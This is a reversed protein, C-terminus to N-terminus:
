ENIADQFQQVFTGLLEERLLRITRKEDNTSEMYEMFTIPMSEPDSPYPNTPSVWPISTVFPKVEGVIIGNREYHRVSHSANGYTDFCIRELKQQTLPWDFMPNHIENFLLVVWHFFTSGYYKKALSEPTEGDIVTHGVYLDSYPKYETLFGARRFIDRVVSEKNNADYVTLPFSSFFTM